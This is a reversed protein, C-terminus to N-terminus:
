LRRLRRERIRSRVRAIYTGVDAGPVNGWVERRISAFGIPENSDTDEVIFFLNKENKM